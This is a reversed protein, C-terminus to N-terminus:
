FTKKIQYIKLIHLQSNPYCKVIRTSIHMLEHKVLACIIM